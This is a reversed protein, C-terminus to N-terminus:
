KLSYYQTILNDLQQSLEIVDYDLLDGGKSLILNDLKIKIKEM